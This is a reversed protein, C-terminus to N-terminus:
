STLISAANTHIARVRGQRGVRGWISSAQLVDSTSESDQVIRFGPIKQQAVYAGVELDVLLNEHTLAEIVGPAALPGNSATLPYVITTATVSSITANTADTTAGVTKIRQGAVFGHGAAVTATAVNSAVSTASPTVTKPQIAQSEYIPIGYVSGLIPIGYEKAGPPTQGSPAFGALRMMAGFGMPNVFLGLRGGGGAGDRIQSRASLIHETTLMVGGVNDHYTASADYCTTKQLYVALADDMSNKLQRIAEIVLSNAYEGDMIQMQDIAPMSAIIAPHLNATVTLATMTVSSPNGRTAGDSAVTLAQFSPVDIVDGRKLPEALQAVLDVLYSPRSRLDAAAKLVAKMRNDAM